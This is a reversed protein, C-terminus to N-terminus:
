PKLFAFRAFHLSGKTLERSVPASIDLDDVNGENETAIAIKDPYYFESFLDEESSMTLSIRTKNM